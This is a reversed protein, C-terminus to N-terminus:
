TNYSVERPRHYVPYDFNCWININAKNLAMCFCFDEGIIEAMGDKEFLGYRFWPYPIKSFVEAKVLLFGGGCWDVVQIGKRRSDFREKVLGPETFTGVQYITDSGHRLYPCCAVEANIAMLSKVHTPTFSIDSDIFLYHSYKNGVDQKIDQSSEGNVLANRSQAIYPGQCAQDEFKIGAERLAPLCSKPLDYESYYPFCLKIM